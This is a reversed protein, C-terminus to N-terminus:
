LLALLVLFKSNPYLKEGARMMLSSGGSGISATGLELKWPTANNEVSFPNLNKVLASSHARRFDCDESSM